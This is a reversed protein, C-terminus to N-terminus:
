HLFSRCPTTAGPAQARGDPPEPRWRDVATIQRRPIADAVPVIAGFADYVHQALWEIEADVHEPAVEMWWSRQIEEFDDPMWCYGRTHLVGRAEFPACVAWLRVTTRLARELLAALVPQGTHPLPSALLWVGVECEALARHRDRAYVGYRCALCHLAASPFGAETWPVERQSCAWSATRAASLVREVFPRYFGANHAVILDAASILASAAATDVSAGRVDEDTLGTLAAIQPPLSRHPDNRHVQAADHFVDVVRGGVTYTFPLLRLEIVADRQPDVGTTETDLYLGRRLREDPRVNYLRAPLVLPHLTRPASPQHPHPM